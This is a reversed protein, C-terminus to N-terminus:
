MQSQSPRGEPDCYLKALQDLVNNEDETVKGLSLFTDHSEAKASNHEDAVSFGDLAMGPGEALTILFQSGVTDPIGNIETAVMRGREQCESPTLRRGQSRLFRKTSTTVDGGKADLVGQFCAGGTGDGHPDGLQCFRNPQVNFILCQTFYRAEALSLINECLKPSGEIDLDIVLDGLTTELLLAM